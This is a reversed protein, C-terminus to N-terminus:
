YFTCYNDGFRLPIFGKKNINKKNYYKVLDYFAERKDHSKFNVDHYYRSCYHNLNNDKDYPTILISEDYVEDRWWYDKKHSVFQIKVGNECLSYNELIKLLLKVVM